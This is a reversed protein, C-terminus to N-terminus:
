VMDDLEQETYTNQVPAGMASQRRMRGIKSSTADWAQRTKGKSYQASGGSQIGMDAGEAFANQDAGLFTFQWGADQKSEIMAKIDSRRFEQSSNEQGDTIIVVVVLGPKNGEPLASIRADTENIARGVADLLATGGRPVLSYPEVGRIPVGKHVFEYETDFQVLTLYADGPAKAQDTIFANVGGQADDRISQMSGSRDVVLTIDTLDNSM